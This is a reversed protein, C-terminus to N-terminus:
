NRSYIFYGDFVVLKREGLYREQWRWIQEQMTFRPVRMQSPLHAAFPLRAGDNKRVFPNEIMLYGDDKLLSRMRRVFKKDYPRLSLGFLCVRDFPESSSYKEFSTSHVFSIQPRSVMFSPHIEQSDIGVYEFDSGCHEILARAFKDDLCGVDLISKGKWFSLNEHLMWAHRFYDPSQGEFLPLAKGFAPVHPFSLESDLRVLALIRKDADAQTVPFSVVLNELSQESSLHNKEVLRWSGGIQMKVFGAEGAVAEPVKKISGYQQVLDYIDVM